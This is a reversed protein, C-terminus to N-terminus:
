KSPNKQKLKCKFTNIIFAYELRPNDCRLIFNGNFGFGSILNIEKPALILSKKVKIDEIIIPKKSFTISSCEADEINSVKDIKLNPFSVSYRSLDNLQFIDFNIIYNRM